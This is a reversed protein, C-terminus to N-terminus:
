KKQLQRRLADHPADINFYVREVGETKPDKFEFVDYAHGDKTRLSQNGHGLSLAQIVRYEERVDIVVYASGFQKGDGSALISDLLGKAVRAHFDARKSDQEARYIKAALEHLEISPFNKELLEEVLASAKQFDERGIAQRIATRDDIDRSYPSYASSAAFAERLKTYDAKAPDRKAAALLENYRSDADSILSGIAASAFTLLILSCTTASRPGM